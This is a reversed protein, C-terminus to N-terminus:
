ANMFSITRSLAHTIRWAYRVTFAKSFTTHQSKNSLLKGYMEVVERESLKALAKVTKSGIEGDVLLLTAPKKNENIWKQMWSFVEDVPGSHFLTDLILFGLGLSLTKLNYADFMPHLVKEAILDYVSKLTSDSISSRKPNEGTLQLIDKFTKPRWKSHIGFLAMGGVDAVLLSALSNTEFDVIDRAAEDLDLLM